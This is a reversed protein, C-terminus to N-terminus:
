AQLALPVCLCILIPPKPPPSLYRGLCHSPPAWRGPRRERGRPADLWGPGGFLRARAGGLPPAQRADSSAAM